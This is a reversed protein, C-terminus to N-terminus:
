LGARAFCVCLQFGAPLLSIAHQLFAAAYSCCCHCMRSVIVPTLRECAPLCPLCVARFNTHTMTLQLLAFTAVPLGVNDAAMTFIALLFLKPQLDLAMVEYATTVCLSRIPQLKVVSFVFCSAFCCRNELLSSNCLVDLSISATCCVKGAARSAPQVSSQQRRPNSSAPPPPRLGGQKEASRSSTVDLSRQHSVLPQQHSLGNSPGNSLAKHDYSSPLSRTHVLPRSSSSSIGSQLHNDTRWSSSNLSAAQRRLPQQHTSPPQQRRSNHPRRNNDTDRPPPEACPLWPMLSAKLVLRACPFLGSFLLALPPPM